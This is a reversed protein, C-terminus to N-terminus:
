THIEQKRRANKMKKMENGRFLILPCYLDHFNEEQFKRLTEIVDDAKPELICIKVQNEFM